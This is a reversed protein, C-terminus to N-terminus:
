FLRWHHQYGRETMCADTEKDVVNQPCDPYPPTNAALAAKSYCDTYDYEVDILEKGPSAYPPRTCGASFALALLALLYMRRM